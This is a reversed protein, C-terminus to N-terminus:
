RHVTFLPQDAVRRRQRGIRLAFARRPHQHLLQPQLPLGHAEQALLPVGRARALGIQRWQRGAVLALEPQPEFLEGQRQVPFRLQALGAQEGEQAARAHLDAGPRHGRQQGFVPLPERTLLRRHHRCPQRATRHLLQIRGARPDVPLRLLTM